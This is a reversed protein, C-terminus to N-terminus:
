GSLMENKTASNLVATLNHNVKTVFQYTLVKKSHWSSSYATMCHERHFAGWIKKVHKSHSVKRKSCNISYHFFFETVLSTLAEVNGADKCWSLLLSATQHANTAPHSPLDFGEDHLVAEITALFM